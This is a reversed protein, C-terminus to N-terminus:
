GKKMEPFVLLLREQRKIDMADTIVCMLVNAKEEGVVEAMKEFDGFTMEELVRFQENTMEM